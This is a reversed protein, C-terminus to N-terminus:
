DSLYEYPSPTDCACTSVTDDIDIDARAALLYSTCSMGIVRRGVVLREGADTTTRETAAGRQAPPGFARHPALRTIAADLEHDSDVPRSVEVILVAQKTALTVLSETRALMHWPTLAM